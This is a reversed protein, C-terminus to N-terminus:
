NKKSPTDPNPQAHSTGVLWVVGTLTLVTRVVAAVSVQCKM